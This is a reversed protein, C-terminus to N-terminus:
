EILAAGNNFAIVKPVSLIPTWKGNYDQFTAKYFRELGRNNKRQYFTFLLVLKEPNSLFNFVIIFTFKKDWHGTFLFHM